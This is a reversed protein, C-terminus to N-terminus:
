SVGNTRLGLAAAAAVSHIAGGVRRTFRGPYAPEEFNITGDPTQADGLNLTADAPESTSTDEPARRTTACRTRLRQNVPNRYGHACRADTKIVRNTGESGSNTVGTLIAVLNEPWWTSVTTALRAM